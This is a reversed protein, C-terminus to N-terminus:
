IGALVEGMILDVVDMTEITLLKKKAKKKEKQLFFYLYLDRITM